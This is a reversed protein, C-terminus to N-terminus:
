VIVVFIIAVWRHLLLFLDGADAYEQVLVVQDGQQFAAFLTIINEHQLSSHLKVERYIQFRNLECRCAVSCNPNIMRNFCLVDGKSGFCM